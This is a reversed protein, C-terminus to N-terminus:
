QRDEVAPCDLPEGLNICDKERNDFAIIGNILYFTKSKGSTTAFRVVFSDQRADVTPMVLMDDSFEGSRCVKTGGVREFCFEARKTDVSPTRIIFSAGGPLKFSAEEVPTFHSVDAWITVRGGQQALAPPISCIIGALSTLFSWIRM